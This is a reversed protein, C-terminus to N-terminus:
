AFFPVFNQFRDYFVFSVVVVVIFFKVFLFSVTSLLVVAPCGELNVTTVNTGVSGALLVVARFAGEIEVDFDLM